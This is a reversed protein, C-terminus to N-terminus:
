SDKSFVLTDSALPTSLDSTVAQATLDCFLRSQLLSKKHQWPEHTLWQNQLNAPLILPVSKNHIQSFTPHPALTVVACSFAWDGSATPWAKAVGALCANTQWHVWYPLKNHWEYFGNSPILIPFSRPRQYHSSSPTLLKSAKANFSVFKTNPHGNAQRLLWWSASFSHFDGQKGQAICQLLDTPRGQAQEYPTFTVGYQEFVARIADNDILNLRGCM